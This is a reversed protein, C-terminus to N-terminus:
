HLATFSKKAWELRKLVNKGYLHNKAPIRAGLDKKVLRRKITSQSISIGGTKLENQIERSSKRRNEPLDKVSRAIYRDTKSSTKRKRGSNQARRLFKGTLKYESVYIQVSSKKWKYHRAIRRVGWSQDVLVPTKGKDQESFRM